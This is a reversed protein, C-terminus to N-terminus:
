ECPKSVHYDFEGKLINERTKAISELDCHCLRILLDRIHYSLAQESDQQVISPNAPEWERFHAAAHSAINSSLSLITSKFDTDVRLPSQLMIQYEEPTM